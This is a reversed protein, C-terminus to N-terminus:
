IIDALPLSVWLLGKAYQVTAKTHEVKPSLSLSRCFPGHDIEMAVICMTEQSTAAPQPASRDGEITLRNPEVRVHISEAEVGSLDVCVDLRDHLRYLNIQPEWTSVPCFERFHAQSSSNDPDGGAPVGSPNLNQKRETKIM